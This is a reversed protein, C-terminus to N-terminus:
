IKPKKSTVTQYPNDILEDTLKTYSYIKEANQVAQRLESITELNVGREKHLKNLFNEDQKDMKEIFDSVDIYFNKQLQSLLTKNLNVKSKKVNFDFFMKEDIKAFFKDLEKVSDNLVFDSFSTNLFEKIFIDGMGALQEVEDVHLKVARITPRNSNNFVIDYKKNDNLYTQFVYSFKLGYVIPSNEPVYLSFSIQVDGFYDGPQAQLAEDELVGLGTKISMLYSQRFNKMLKKDNKKMSM